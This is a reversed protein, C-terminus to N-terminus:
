PVKLMGYNQLAKDQDLGEVFEEFNSFEQMSPRLIKALPIEPESTM